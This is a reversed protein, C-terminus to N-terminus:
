SPQYVGRWFTQDPDCKAQDFNQGMRALSNTLSRSTKTPNFCDKKQFFFLQFPQSLFVVNKPNKKPNTRPNTSNISAFSMALAWGKHGHLQGVYAWFHGLLVIKKNKRTKSSIDSLRVAMYTSGCWHGECWDIRSICPGIWSIKVFFYQSNAIKFFSTKKLPGNQNKKEFFYKTKSWEWSFM